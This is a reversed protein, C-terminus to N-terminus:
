DRLLAEISKLQATEEAEEKEREARGAWLPILHSPLMTRGMRDKGELAKLQAEMDSLKSSVLLDGTARLATIGERAAAPSLEGRMMASSLTTSAQEIDAVTEISKILDIVGLRDDETVRIAERIMAPDGRAVGAELAAIARQRLRNLDDPM